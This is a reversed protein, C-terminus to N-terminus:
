MMRMSRGHDQEVSAAHRAVMRLTPSEGGYAYAAHIRYSQDHAVMQQRRYTADFHAPSTTAALQDLWQQQEPQLRDPPLLNLRRGAMSLQAALGRHAEIMRQAYARNGAQGSRELALEGARVQYLDISAAKFLYASTPLPREAPREVPPAPPPPPPQRRPACGTIAVLATGVSVALAIRLRSM